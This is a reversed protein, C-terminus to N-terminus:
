GHKVFTGAELERWALDLEEQTNMVIPGRWAVPEGLPRGSCFLFRLGAEGATFAAEDGDGFRVLTRDSLAARGSHGSGAITYAFATHGAPAPLACAGSAPLSVDLYQPDAAM